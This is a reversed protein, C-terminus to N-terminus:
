FLPGLYVYFIGSTPHTTARAYDFHLVLPVLQLIFTHVRLGVGYSLSAERWQARSLERRTNWTYGADTFIAATIARFYFDPFIYWMYYDMRKWLPFRLEATGLMARNGVHNVTSSGYGRLAGMGGIAFEQANRGDSTAGLLRVALTTMDGLPFYQHATGIYSAYKTNGGLVEHAGVYSLRLRSGYTAVLYRGGVTDRVLSAGTLRADNVSASQNLAPFRETERVNGLFTEVRHYRDLPYNLGALQLHTSQDESLGSAQDIANRFALGAAVFSLQPRWRNYNYQTQYNYYGQGTNLAVQAAVNHNGLLDSGQWYSLAFLGGQSSYFLAPLFLDTSFRFQYPREAGLVVPASSAPAAHHTTTSLDLGPLRALELPPPLPRAAPWPTKRPGVGAEGVPPLAPSVNPRPAAARVSARPLYDAKVTEALLRSRDGRYVHLSNRRFATFTVDGNPAYIPTFTAGLSRALRILRGSELDLEHIDHYSGEELAFLVRRGDHSPMPDHVSGRVDLLRRSTLGDLDLRYLRRQYPMPDGDVVTESTYLISKGDPLYAPSADDQPDDTLQTVQRSRLDVSYLDTVSEKMGAFVIRLGDPSFTPGRVTQFGPLKVIDLRRRELNYLYLSERHNKQASFALTRGDPSIALVRSLQTFRGLEINEIKRFVKDVLKRTKGKRVDKIWVASPHGAKTTVYAFRRGDPTWVPSANFEPLDVPGTTLQVGYDTPEQLKEQAAVRRYKETLYERWKRDFAFIDLGVLDQLMASSEFRSEFLKVMQGIKESGYEHAIFDMVTAGSKYGLTVEHPKLHSFHELKWLPILRGSTAADRVYYEETPDDLGHTFHEAMGEMMWLPYVIAKLIRASRWFGSVLVAYQFVHVLEHTTVGDLWRRSGDNYVMFRDKFAETVGGIGDSVEVINSQQMENMSGYLFFPRREKFEVDMGKSIRQYSRELIEAAMPVLPETEEYYHIDFHETSRVRWKFDRLVVHNQGFGQGYVTQAMLLVAAAALLRRGRM